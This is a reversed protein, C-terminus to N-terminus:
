GDSLTDAEAPVEDGGASLADRRGSMRDGGASLTHRGYPLVDTAYHTRMEDSDASM